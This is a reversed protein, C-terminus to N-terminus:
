QAAEGVEPKAALQSKRGVDGAPRQQLHSPLVQPRKFPLGGAGTGSQKQMNYDASDFYAPKNGQLRKQLFGNMKPPAGKINYKSAMKQGADAQKAQETSM